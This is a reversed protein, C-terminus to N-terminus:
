GRVALAERRMARFIPLGHEQGYTTILLSGYSALLCLILSPPINLGLLLM